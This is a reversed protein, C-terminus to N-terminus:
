RRVLCHPRSGCAECAVGLLLQVYVGVGATAEKRLDQIRHLKGHSQIGKCLSGPASSVAVGHVMAHMIRKPAVVAFSLCWCIM